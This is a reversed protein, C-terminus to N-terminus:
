TGNDIAEEAEDRPLTLTFGNISADWNDLFINISLFLVM